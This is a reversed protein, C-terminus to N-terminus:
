FKRNLHLDSTPALAKAVADSAETAEVWLQTHDAPLFGAKIADSLQALLSNYYDDLNMVVINGSYLGLQRWTILEVLEEFTGIGGPLAIAGIAFSAMTAKRVHMDPTIITRTSKPDNWGRDVMFQPIVSITEGGAERCARGAAGMMGMSGGGYIMPVGARAIAAGVQAAVTRFLPNSGDASGGYITVGKPNSTM